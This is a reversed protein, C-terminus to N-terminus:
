RNKMIFETLSDGVKTIGSNLSTRYIEGKDSQWIVIGDVDLEEIVYYNKPVEANYQRQTKTVDVVDLQKSKSIGTLSRGDYMIAGFEKLYARYDSAFVLGLEEEAKNIEEDSVGKGTILDPLERIIDAVSM